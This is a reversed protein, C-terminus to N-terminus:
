IRENKEGVFNISKFDRVMTNYFEELNDIMAYHKAKSILTIM